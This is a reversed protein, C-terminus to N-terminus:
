LLLHIFKYSLLSMFTSKHSLTSRCYKDGATFFLKCRAPKNIKQTFCGVLRRVQNEYTTTILHRQLEIVNTERLIAATVEKDPTVGKPCHIRQTPTSVIGDLTGLRLNPQNSLPTTELSSSTGETVPPGAGSEAPAPLGTGLLLELQRKEEALRNLRTTLESTEAAQALNEAEM